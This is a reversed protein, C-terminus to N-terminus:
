YNIINITFYKGCNGITHEHSLIQRPLVATVTIRGSRAAPQPMRLSSAVVLREVAESLQSSAAQAYVGVVYGTTHM